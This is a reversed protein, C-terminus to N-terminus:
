LYSFLWVHEHIGITMADLLHPLFPPNNWFELDGLVVCCHGIVDVVATCGGLVPNEM